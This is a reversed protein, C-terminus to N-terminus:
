TTTTYAGANDVRRHYHTGVKGGTLPALLTGILVAAATIAGGWSLADTPVPITPLDIRNMVDYQSGFAVGVAVAILTLLVGIIWVGLGQRAGDFRSMRGAVYGGAYYGIMMVVLLVIAAVIGITGAQRQADSQTVDNNAGVGAAIAGVISLLLASVAVAVLWGFFDAGWNIGGFRDRQMAESRETYTTDDVDTRDDVDARHEAHENLDSRRRDM